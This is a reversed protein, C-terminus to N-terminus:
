HSVPIEYGAMDDLEAYEEDEAKVSQRSVNPQEYGHKPKKSSKGQGFLDIGRRFNSWFFIRTM